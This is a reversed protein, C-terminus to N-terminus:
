KLAMRNKLLYVDRSVQQVAKMLNDLKNDRDESLNTRRGTSYNTQDLDSWEAPKTRGRRRDKKSNSMVRNNKWKKTKERTDETRLHTNQQIRGQHRRRDRKTNYRNINRDKIIKTNLSSRRTSTVSIHQKQPREDRRFSATGPPCWHQREDENRYSSSRTGSNGHGRNKRVEEMKNVDVSRPWYQSRWNQHLYKAISRSYLTRLDKWSREIKTQYVHIYYKNPKFVHWNIERGEPPVMAFRHRRLVHNYWPEWKFVTVGETVWKKVGAEALTQVSLNDLEIDSESIEYFMGQWTLLIKDYGTAVLANQFSYINRKQRQSLPLDIQEKWCRELYNFHDSCRINGRDIDKKLSDGVGRDGFYRSREKSNNTWNASRVSREQFPSYAEYLERNGKRNPETLDDVRDDIETLDDEREDIEMERDQHQQSRTVSNQVQFLSPTPSPATWKPIKRELETKLEESEKDSLVKDCITKIVEAQKQSTKVLDKIITKLKEVDNFVGLLTAELTNALEHVTTKAIQQRWIQTDEWLETKLYKFQKMVKKKWTELGSIIDEPTTEKSKKQSGPPKMEIEVRDPIRDSHDKKLNGSSNVEGEILVEEEEIQSNEPTIIHMHTFPLSKQKPVTNWKSKIERDCITENESKGGRECETLIRQQKDQDWKDKERAQEDKQSHRRVSQGSKDRDRDRERETQIKQLALEADMEWTRALSRSKKKLNMSEETDKCKPLDTCIIKSDSTPNQVTDEIAKIESHQATKEEMNSNEEREDMYETDEMQLDADDHLKNTNRRKSKPAEDTDKMKKRLSISDKGVPSRERKKMSANEPGCKEKEEKDQVDKPVDEESKMGGRLKMNNRTIRSLREYSLRQSEKRLTCKLFALDDSYVTTKNRIRFNSLEELSAFSLNSGEVEEQKVDDDEKEYFLVYAQQDSVQKWTFPEWMDDNCCFWIDEDADFRTTATYHGGSITKGIHSIVAKM